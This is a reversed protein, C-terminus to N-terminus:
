FELIEGCVRCKFEGKRILEGWPHECHLKRVGEHFEIYGCEEPSECNCRNDDQGCRFDKDGVERVEVPVCTYGKDKFYPILWQQGASLSSWALSETTGISRYIGEKDKIAFGNTM